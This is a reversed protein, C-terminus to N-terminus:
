DFTPFFHPNPLFSDSYFKTRFIRLCRLGLLIIWRQIIVSLTLLILSEFNEYIVCIQCKQWKQVFNADLHRLFNFNGATLSLSVVSVM